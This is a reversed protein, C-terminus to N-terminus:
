QMGLAKFEKARFDNVRIKRGLLGKSWVGCDSFGQLESSSGGFRQLGIDKGCGFGYDRFEQVAGQVQVGGWCFFASVFLGEHIWFDQSRWVGLNTLEQLFSSCGRYPWSAMLCIMLFTHRQRIALTCYPKPSKTTAIQSPPRRNHVMAQGDGITEM